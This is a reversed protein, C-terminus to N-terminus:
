IIKLAHEQFFGPIMLTGHKYAFTKQHMYEMYLRLIHMFFAHVKSNTLFKINKALIKIMQLMLIISQPYRCLFQIKRSISIQNNRNNSEFM